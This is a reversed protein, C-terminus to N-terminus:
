EDLLSRLRARDLVELHRRGLRVLGQERMDSLAKTVTERHAGVMDALEEHTLDATVGDRSMRLLVSAIRTPVDRYALEELRAESEALRSGIAELMRLGVRPKALVLREVDRHSMVCLVSDEVAEAYANRMREGLLPLEGFFTGPELVALELRRGGPSARWLRVRGEKLLYLVEAGQEQRYITRGQEVTVMRTVREIEGLEQDSLDQFIEIKRLFQRKYPLHEELECGPSRRQNRLRRIAM